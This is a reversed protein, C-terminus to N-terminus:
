ASCRRVSAFDIPRPVLRRLPPRFAAAFYRSAAVWLGEVVQALLRPRALTARVDFRLALEYQQDVDFSTYNLLLLGEPIVFPKPSRPSFFTQTFGCTDFITAPAASFPKLVVRFSPRNM